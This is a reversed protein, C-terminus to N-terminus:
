DSRSQGLKKIREAGIWSCPVFIGVLCSFLEQQSNNVIQSRSLAEGRLHLHKIRLFKKM